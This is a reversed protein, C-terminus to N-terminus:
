SNTTPGKKCRWLMQLTPYPDLEKLMEGEEIRRELVQILYRGKAGGKTRGVRFIMGRLDKGQHAQSLLIEWATATIELFGQWQAGATCVHLYGQWKEPWSDNCGQCQGRDRTCEHSRRGHWHIPQGWIARSLCILQLPEVTVIRIVDIKFKKTPPASGRVLDQSM